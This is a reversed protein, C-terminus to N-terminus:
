LLPDMNMVIHDGRNKLIAKKINEPVGRRNRATGSAGMGCSYLDLFLQPSSYYNDTYLVRGSYLYPQALRFVLNYTSGHRSPVGRPVATYLKFRSCYGNKADCFKYAKIGYKEPKNPNFQKFKVNGHIRSIPTGLHYGDTGFPFIM